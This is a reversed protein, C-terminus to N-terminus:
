ATLWVGEIGGSVASWSGWTTNWQSSIKPLRTPFENQTLPHRAERLRVRSSSHRKIGPSVQGGVVLVTVTVTVGAGLGVHKSYQWVQHRPVGNEPIFVIRCGTEVGVHIQSTFNTSRFLSDAPTM